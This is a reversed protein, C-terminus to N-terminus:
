LFTRSNGKPIGYRICRIYHKAPPIGKKFHDFNIDLYLVYVEYTYHYVVISFIMWDQFNKTNDGVKRCGNEKWKLWILFM